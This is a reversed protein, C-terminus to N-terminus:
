FFLIDILCFLIFHAIQEQAPICGGFVFNGQERTYCLMAPASASSVVSSAFSSSGKIARPFALFFSSSSVSTMFGSVNSRLFSLDKAKELLM